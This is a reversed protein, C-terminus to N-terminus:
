AVPSRVPCIVPKTHEAKRDPFRATGRAAPLFAAGSPGRGRRPLSPPLGGAKSRSACLCDLVTSRHMLRHCPIAVRQSFVQLQRVSRSARQPYRRRGAPHDLRFRRARRGRRDVMNRRRPRHADPRCPRRARRGAGTRDPQETRRADVDPRSADPRRRHGARAPRTSPGHRPAPPHPSRLRPRRRDLPGPPLTRTRRATHAAPNRPHTPHPRPAHDSPPHHPHVRGHGAGPELRTAPRRPRRQTTRPQQRPAHGTRPPTYFNRATAGIHAVVDAIRWGAAASPAAWEEDSLSSTFDLM